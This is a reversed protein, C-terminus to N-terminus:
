ERTKLASILDLRAIDRRIIAGSLVAPVIVSLAAFGLASPSLTAPIQYLDTSFAEAMVTSMLISLGAGFPLAVLVTLALEGLLVFATEGRTFGLVRLSALDRARESFAIRTANYVIGFAIIGAIFTMYYRAAGAGSDLMEQFADRAEAKVSVGAVAPRAKLAESVIDAAASDRTIYAGTVRGPTGLARNLADIEMFAPAGVLTDAVGAVPLTLTRRDGDLLKLTVPDGPGVRLIGALARSLLIGGAPPVLTQMDAAVARNLVADAALGTVAGRYSTRGAEFQVPAVRVAEVHAVGPVRALELASRAAVPHTFTVTMDSRDIVNFSLDVADSFASTVTLMAGALSMGAAIGAVSGLFRGPQRRIRRLV